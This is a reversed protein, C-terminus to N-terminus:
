GGQLDEGGAIRAQVRMHALLDLVSRHIYDLDSSPRHRPRQVPGTSLRLYDRFVERFELFTSSACRTQSATVDAKGGFASM